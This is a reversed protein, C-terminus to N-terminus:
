RPTSYRSSPSSRWSQHPTRRSRIPGQREPRHGKVTGQEVILGDDVEGLGGVVVAAEGFSGEVRSAEPGQCVSKFTADEVRVLDEGMEPLFPGVVTTTPADVKKQL